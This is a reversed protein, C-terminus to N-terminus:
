TTCHRARSSVKKKLRQQNRHLLPGEVSSEKLESKRYFTATDEVAEAM